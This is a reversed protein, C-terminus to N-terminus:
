SKPTCVPRNAVSPGSPKRRAAPVIERGINWYLQILERNVSLMARTQAQRICAKPSELLEAHDAPLGLLTGASIRGRAM